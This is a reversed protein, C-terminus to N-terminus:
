LAIKEEQIRMKELNENLKAKIGKKWEKKVM